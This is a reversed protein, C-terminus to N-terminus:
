ISYPLASLVWINQYLILVDQAIYSPSLFFLALFNAIYVYM